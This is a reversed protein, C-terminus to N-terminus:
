ARSALAFLHGGHGMPDPVVRDGIVDFAADRLLQLNTATDYHSWYM